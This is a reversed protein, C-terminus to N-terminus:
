PRCPRYRDHDHVPGEAARAVAGTTPALHSTPDLVLVGAPLTITSTPFTMIPGLQHRCRVPDLATPPPALDPVVRPGQRRARLLRPDNRATPSHNPDPPSPDPIENTAEVDDDNNNNNNNNNFIRTTTTTKSPHFIFATVTLITLTMIPKPIVIVSIRHHNDHRGHRNKRPHNKRLRSRKHNRRSKRSINARRRNRRGIITTTTTAVARGVITEQPIPTPNDIDMHIHM